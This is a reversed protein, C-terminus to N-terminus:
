GLRVQARKARLEAEEWERAAKAEAEKAAAAGAAAVAIDRASPQPPAFGPAPMGVQPFAGPPARMGQPM